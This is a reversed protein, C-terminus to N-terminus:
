DRPIASDRGSAGTWEGTWGPRRAQVAQQAIPMPERPGTPKAARESRRGSTSGQGGATAGGSRKRKRKAMAARALSRARQEGSGAAAARARLLCAPRLHAVTPPIPCATHTLCTDAGAAAADVDCDMEDEDAGFGGDGALQHLAADLGLGDRAGTSAPAGAAAPAAPEPTHGSGPASPSGGAASDMSSTMLDRLATLVKHQKGELKLAQRPTPPPHSPPVFQSCVTTCSLAYVYRLSGRRSAPLRTTRTSPACRLQLLLRTTMARRRRTASSSPTPACSSPRMARSSCAHV